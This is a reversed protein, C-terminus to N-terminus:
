IANTAAKSIVVCSPVHTIKSDVVKQVAEARKM